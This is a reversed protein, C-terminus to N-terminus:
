QPNAQEIGIHDGPSPEITSTFRIGEIDREIEKGELLTIMEEGSITEYILLANAIRDLAQRNESKNLMERVSHRCERLVRVIEEDVKELTAEGLQQPDLHLRGLDSMGHTTIMTRALQTAQQLDGSAGGTVNDKGLLIEEAVRGGFATKIHKIIQYNPMLEVDSSPIFSTYGGAAGRPIITIKHVKNLESGLLHSVLAHGAEHYATIKRDEEHVQRKSLEVGMRQRDIGFDLDEMTIYERGIRVAHIAAQNVCNEIEAGTMGITSHSLVDLNINRTTKRKGLYYDVIDRRGKSDPLPVEITKDFRGPRLLAPDLLDVSTNTAGIVVINSKSSFGDMQTLLENLTQQHYSRLSTRDKAISDIEDIFIVAKENPSVQKFLERMRLAGMGVFAQDFESGCVSIFTVGSEQAVAKALLTKGTGPPGVLLIGRPIRAGFKQYKEPYKLFDVVDMLEDKVEDIGKIDNFYKGTKEIVTGVKEQFLYPTSSKSSGATYLNFLTYILAGLAIYRFFRIFRNKKQDTQSPILDITVNNELIEKLEQHSVPRDVPTSSSQSMSTLKQSQSITNLNSDSVQVINPYSDKTDNQFNYRTKIESIANKYILNMEENRFIAYKPNHFLHIIKESQGTNQLYKIYQQQIYLNNPNEEFKEELREVALPSYHHSIFRNQSSISNIVYFNSHEIIFASNYFQPTSINKEGLKGLIGKFCPSIRSHSRFM